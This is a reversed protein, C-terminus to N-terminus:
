WKYWWVCRNRGWNSGSALESGVQINCKRISRVTQQATWHIWLERHFNRFSQIRSNTMRNISSSRITLGINKVRHRMLQSLQHQVCSFWSSRTAGYILVSDSLFYNDFSESIVRFFFFDRDFTMCIFFKNSTNLSIKTPDSHCWRSRDFWLKLHPATSLNRLIQYPSKTATKM